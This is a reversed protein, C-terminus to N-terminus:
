HRATHTTSTASNPAGAADEPYYQFVQVRGRWQDTVYVRNNGDISVGAALIFQGPNVGYAGVALLPQGEKTLIQMNNFEADAVYVHGDRDVAIGKPRLFTGPTVGQKGFARVFKGASDFVQVRHNWTDTVYIHGQSDVAVNTPSAFKGEEAEGPTSAEGITAIPLFSDSDFVQVQNAQADVVYLRRRASDVAIGGPRKLVESGFVGLVNGDPDFCTIQHFFSDSVFLRDRADIAVGVPTAMQAPPQTGRYEVSRSALDFVFVARNAPDAVYIRGESDAAVGYPAKLQARAKKAPAGVARDMWSRKPKGKVDDVGTIQTIFQLRKRQPPQPWVLSSPDVKAPAQKRGGAHVAPAFLLALLVLVLQRSARTWCFDNLKTRM